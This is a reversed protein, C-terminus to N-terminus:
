CLELNFRRFYTSSRFLFECRVRPVMSRPWSFFPVFCCSPLAATLDCRRAWLASGDQMACSAEASVKSYVALAAVCSVTIYAGIAMMLTSVVVAWYIGLVNAFVLVLFAGTCLRVGLVFPWPSSRAGDGLELFMGQRQFMPTAAIVTSTMCMIMSPLRWPIPSEFFHIVARTSRSPAFAAANRTATGAGGVLMLLSSVVVIATVAQVVASMLAVLIGRRLQKETALLWASIVATGHGPGKDISDAANTWHCCRESYAAAKSHM